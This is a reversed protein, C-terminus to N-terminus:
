ETKPRWGNKVFNMLKKVEFVSFGFQQCLMQDTLEVLLAGDVMQDLFMQSYKDMKLLSLCHCLEVVTLSGIDLDLPIEAARKWQRKTQQQSVDEYPTVNTEQDEDGGSGTTPKTEKLIEM